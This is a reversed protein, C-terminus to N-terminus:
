IYPLWERVRLDVKQGVSEQVHYEGSVLVDKHIEERLCKQGSPQLPFMIGDCLSSSVVLVCWVIYLVNM